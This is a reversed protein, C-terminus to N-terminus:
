LLSIVPHLVEMTKRSQGVSLSNLARDRIVSRIEVPVISNELSEHEHHQSCFIQYIGDHFVKAKVQYKVNQLREINHVDSQLQTMNKLINRVICTLM